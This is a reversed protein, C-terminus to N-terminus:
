ARSSGQEAETGRGVEFRNSARVERVPVMSEVEGEDGDFGGRTIKLCFTGGIEMRSVRNMIIGSDILRVLM